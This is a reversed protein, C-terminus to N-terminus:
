NGIIAPFNGSTTSDDTMIAEEEINFFGTKIKNGTQSEHYGFFLVYKNLDDGVSSDNTWGKNTLQYIPSAHLSASDVTANTNLAPYNHEHFNFSVSPDVGATLDYDLKIIFAKNPDSNTSNTTLSVFAAGAETNSATVYVSDVNEVYKEYGVASIDINAKTTSLDFSAIAMGLNTTSSSLITSTNAVYVYDTAGSDTVSISIDDISDYAGKTYVDTASALTPSLPSSIDVRHLDLNSNSNKTAIFLYYDPAVTDEWYINAIEQNNIGSGTLDMNSPPTAASDLGALTNAGTGSAYGLQMNAAADSYPLFWRGNTPDVVIDGVVPTIKSINNYSDFENPGQITVVNAAASAFIEKAMAEVDANAGGTWAFTQNIVSVLANAVDTTTACLGTTAATCYAVIVDSGVTADIGGYRYIITNGLSNILPLDPYNVADPLNSFTIELEGAYSSSASINATDDIMPGTGTINANGQDYLDQCTNHETSYSDGAVYMGCYNFSFKGNATDIRRVRFQPTQTQNEIIGYSILVSTSDIGTMSLDYISTPIFGADSDETNFSLTHATSLVGNADYEMKEVFITSGSTYATYLHGETEDYWQALENGSSNNSVTSTLAVTSPYVTINQWEKIRRTDTLLAYGGGSTDTCDTIENGVGDDALCLRLDVSTASTIELDPTWVLRPSSQNTSNANSIESWSGGGDTSVLWQWSINTGDYLSADDFDSTTVNIEFPMGAFVNAGTLDVFNAEDVGTWDSFTPPPNTNTVNVTFTTSATDCTFCIPSSANDPKDQVTVKINASTLTGSVAWEPVLVMTRVLTWLDDDTKEVVSTPSLVTYGGLVGNSMEITINFNDRELDRVATYIRLCATEVITDADFDTVTAVSNDGCSAAPLADWWSEGATYDTPDTAATLFNGIQLTGTSQQETVSIEWTLLNSDKPSVGWGLGDGADRIFATVIYDGPEVPGGTSLSGGTSSFADMRLNCIMKDNSDIGGGGVTEAATYRCDSYTYKNTGDINDFGSDTTKKIQFFVEFDDEDAIVIDPDYDLNIGLQVFNDTDEPAGATYDGDLDFDVSQTVTCSQYQVPTTATCGMSSSTTSSNISIVPKINKPRVVINWTFSEVQIATGTKYTVVNLSKSEAVDPNTLNFYSQAAVTNAQSLCFENSGLATEPAFGISNGAVKFEVDIDAAGNSDKDSNDVTVCILQTNGNSIDQNLTDRWGANAFDIGDVITITESIPPTSSATQIVPMDPSVVNILWVYNDLVNNPDSSSVVQFELTHFGEGLAQPNITYSVPVSTASFASTVVPTGNDVRVLFDGSVSNPNDITMSLTESTLSSAYTYATANPSPNILTPQIQGSVIITWNISDLQNSGDQDFLVAELVYTGAQKVTPNFTYSADNQAVLTTVANGTNPDQYYEYWKITYGYNYADSIAVAHATANDVVSTTYSNEPTKTQIFVTNTTSAGVVPVCKRRTANFAENSACQTEKQMPLCSVLVSSMVLLM